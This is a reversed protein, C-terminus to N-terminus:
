KCTVCRTDMSVDAPPNTAVNPELALSQVYIHM